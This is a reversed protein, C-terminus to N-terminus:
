PWRRPERSRGSEGELRIGVVFTVKTGARVPSPAGCQCGEARPVRKPSVRAVVRASMARAVRSPTAKWIASRISAMWSSRPGASVSSLTSPPIARDSANRWNWASTSPWGIRRLGWVSDVARPAASRAPRPAPSQGSRVAATRVARTPRGCAESGGAAVSPPGPGHLAPAPGDLGHDAVVVLLM